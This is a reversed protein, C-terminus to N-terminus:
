ETTTRSAGPVGAPVGAGGARAPRPFQRLLADIAPGPNDSERRIEAKRRRIYTRLSRSREGAM